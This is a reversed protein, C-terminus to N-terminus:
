KISVCIWSVHVKTWTTLLASMSAIHINKGIYLPQLLCSNLIGYLSWSFTHTIKRICEHLSIIYLLLQIWVLFYFKNQNKFKIMCVHSSSPNSYYIPLLMPLCLGTWFTLLTNISNEFSCISFSKTWEKKVCPSFNIQM